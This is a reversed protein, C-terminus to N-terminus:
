GVRTEEKALTYRIYELCEKKEEIALAAGAGAGTGSGLAGAGGLAAERARRRLTRSVLLCSCFEALASIACVSVSFPRVGSYTSRM